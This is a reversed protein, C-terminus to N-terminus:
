TYRKVLHSVLNTAVNTLYTVDSDTQHPFEWLPVDGLHRALVSSNTSRALDPTEGSVENLIVGAVEIDRRLLAEVTLLTHNLCGLRNATVVLTPLGLKQALDAATHQATWPVLLGGAGELLTWGPQKLREQVQTLLNEWVLPYGERRAAEEPALPDRLLIMSAPHSQGSASTLAEGDEGVRRGDREFCGTEVGKLGQAVLGLQRFVRLLVCTVYTKGVGTDTGTILLARSM